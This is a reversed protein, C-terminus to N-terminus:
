GQTAQRERQAKGREAQPTLHLMLATYRAVHLTLQGSNTVARLGSLADTASWHTGWATLDITAQTDHGHLNVVVLRYEDDRRYGYALVPAGIPTFLHWEGDTYVPHTAEALVRKYFAHLKLDLPENPQRNIQVPLKVRRAEFQGDHLLVAGPVTCILPALAHSKEVGYASAARPEDHNELFHVTHRLFRIDALLHTRLEDVEAEFLRDYLTKDYTYNFGQQQLMFDMNWYVEAMFLFNPHKQRITPIISPWFDVEPAREKVHAGWTRVFVENTLLMAMDCRVGDCQEAIDLLTHRTWERMAPHFANLQATDIWSPFYPDRGHAIYHTHGHRDKVPYFMGRYRANTEANTHVFLELHNVTAPHDTAVHNPVYDLILKIGRRALQQRLTALGDRGGAAPDVEYAGIAYASGIVDAETLDPLVPKYEHMYNLASDRVAKSRTWVGMMWVADIHYAALEDIVSDPINALTIPQKFRQSLTTLWVRTNIQYIFPKSNWHATMPKPKQATQEGTAFLRRVTNLAKTLISDM